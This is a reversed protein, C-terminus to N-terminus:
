PGVRADTWRGRHVVEAADRRPRTAASGKAGTDPVRHGLTVAGIPDFADPIGFRRVCRM